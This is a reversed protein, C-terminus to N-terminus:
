ESRIAPEASGTHAASFGFIRLQIPDHVRAPPVRLQGLEPLVKQMTRRAAQDVVPLTSKEPNAPLTFLPKTEAGGGALLWYGSTVVVAAGVLWLSILGQHKAKM